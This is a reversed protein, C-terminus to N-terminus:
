EIVTRGHSAPRWGALMMSDSCFQNPFGLRNLFLRFRELGTNLGYIQQGSAAAKDLLARARTLREYVNPAIEVTADKRAIAAVDAITTGAGAFVVTSM